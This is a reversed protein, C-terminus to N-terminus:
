RRRFAKFSIPVLIKFSFDFSRLKIDDFVDYYELMVDQNDWRKEGNVINNFGHKYNIEASLRLGWLDYSVGAGACIGSDFRYIQERISLDEYLHGHNYFKDAEDEQDLITKESTYRYITKYASSRIRYFAGVQIYPSLKSYAFRYKIFLPIEIYTLRQRRNYSNTIPHESDDWNIYDTYQFKLVCISPQLCIWFDRTLAYEVTLGLQTGRSHKFHFDYDKEYPMSGLSSAHEMLYYSRIPNAITFNVGPNIGFLLRPAVFYKEKAARRIPLWYQDLSEGRRLVLIKRLYIEGLNPRDMAFFSQAVLQYITAKVEKTVRKFAKKEEGGIGEVTNIEGNERCCQSNYLDIVSLLAGNDYAETMHTAVARYRANLETRKVKAFAKQSFVVILIAVVFLIIFSRAFNFLKGGAGIGERRKLCVARLAAPPGPARWAPPTLAAGQREGRLRGRLAAPPMNDIADIM